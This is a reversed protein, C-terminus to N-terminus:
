ILLWDQCLKHKYKIDLGCLVVNLVRGAFCILNSEHHSWFRINQIVFSKWQDSMQLSTKNCESLCMLCRVDAQASRYNNSYFIRSAYKVGSSLTLNFRVLNSEVSLDGKRNRLFDTEANWNYFSFSSVLGVYHTWVVFISVCVHNHEFTSSKRWWKSIM